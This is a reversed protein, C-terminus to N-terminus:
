NVTFHVTKTTGNPTSVDIKYDGKPWPMPNTRFSYSLMTDGGTDVTNVVPGIIEGSDGPYTLTAIVKDGQQAKSLQVTAFIKEANAPITDKNQLVYGQVRTDSVLVEAIDTTSAQTSSTTTTAPTTTAPTSGTMNDQAFATTALALVSVGSIIIKQLLKSNLQDM